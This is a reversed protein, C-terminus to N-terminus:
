AAEGRNDPTPVDEIHGGCSCGMADLQWKLPSLGAGLMAERAQEKAADCESRTPVYLPPCEDPSM